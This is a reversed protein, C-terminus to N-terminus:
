GVAGRRLELGGRASFVYPPHHGANCYDLEGTRTDLIGYVLTVFM